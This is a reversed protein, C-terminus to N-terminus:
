EKVEADDLECFEAIEGIDPIRKESQVCWDIRRDHVLELTRLKKICHGCEECALLIWIKPM